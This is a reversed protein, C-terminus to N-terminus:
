KNLAQLVIATSQREYAADYGTSRFYYDVSLCVSLCLIVRTACARRPSVTIQQGKGISSLLWRAIGRRTM